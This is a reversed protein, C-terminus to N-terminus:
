SVVLVISSEGDSFTLKEIEEKIDTAMRENSPWSVSLTM